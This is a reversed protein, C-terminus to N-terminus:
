SQPTKTHPKLWSGDLCNALFFFRCVTRQGHKTSVFVLIGEAPLSSIYETVTHFTPSQSCTKSPKPKTLSPHLGNHTKYVHRLPYNSPSYRWFLVCFFQCTLGHSRWIHIWSQGDLSNPDCESAKVLNVSCILSWSKM